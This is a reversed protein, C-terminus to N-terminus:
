PKKVPALQKKIVEPIPTRTAVAIKRIMESREAVTYGGITLTENIERIDVPRLALASVVYKDITPVYEKMFRTVDQQLQIDRNHDVQKPVNEDTPIGRGEMIPQDDWFANRMTFWTGRVRMLLRMRRARLEQWQGEATPPPVNMTLQMAADAICMRVPTADQEYEFATPSAKLIIGNAIDLLAHQWADDKKNQAVSAVLLKRADSFYMPNGTKAWDTELILLEKVPDMPPPKGGAPQDAAHLLVMVGVLIAIRAIV